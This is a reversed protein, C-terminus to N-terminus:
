WIRVTGQSFDLVSKKQKKKLLFCQQMEIQDLYRTFNSPQIAKLDSDLPEQKSIDIAVVNSYKQFYSYDLLCGTTYDIEQGTTIKRINEYERLDNKVSQDYFTKRNTMINYDEIKM